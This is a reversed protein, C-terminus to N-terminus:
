FAYVYEAGISGVFGRERTYSKLKTGEANADVVKDDVFDGLFYFNLKNHKNVKIDVGLCTRYRNIYCGRFGQLFWGPEGRESGDDTLYHTGDYNACIVPANLFNRLEFYLYPSAVKTNYKVSIRSKLMLENRPYQYENFDGTRYTWQFREKLSFDWRGAKILGRVDFYLRHRLNKFASNTSSYPAIFVYGTGLKLYPNVKYSLELTTESRDFSRFNNDFRVEENLAIHFGKTIKKDLGVAIRAEFEPSLAVDTQAQVCNTIIACTIFIWYKKMRCLYCKM